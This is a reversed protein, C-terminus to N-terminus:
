IGNNWAETLLEGNIAIAALAGVSAAAILQHLESASDGASYVGSVNTKGFSDVIVDGTETIQCGIAQPLDSGPVPKPAFFSGTCAMKCSLKSYKVRRLTM